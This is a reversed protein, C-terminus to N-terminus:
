RSNRSKGSIRRIYLWYGSVTLFIGGMCAALYLLKTIWGGWTGTHIIYAYGMVKSGAPMDAYKEVSAIHGNQDFYYTDSARWHHEATKVSASREKLSVSVYDPVLQKIEALANTWAETSVGVDEKAYHEDVAPKELAAKIGLVTEMGSRYWGFSWMPGTLAMLLLFIVCYWGLARHSTFWWVHSNKGKKISLMQKWQSRKKPFAIVAGSILIFAFFLSSIGIITRGVTRADGSTLLWRHLSRVTSFFSGGPTEKGAVEATYPNVTLFVGKKGEAGFEYNREPDAYVTLSSIIQKKQSAEKRATETLQELSLPAKGEPMDAYYYHPDIIRQLETQFTLIAGTACLIIVFIGAPLSLWLHLKKFFRKM